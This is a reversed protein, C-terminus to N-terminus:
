SSKTAQLVNEIQKKMGAAGPLLGMLKSMSGMNKMAELQSLFDDFTFEEGKLIIAEKLDKYHQRKELFFFNSFIVLIIIIPHFTMVSIRYVSKAKKRSSYLTFIIVYDLFKTATYGVMVATYIGYVMTILDGCECVKKDCDRELASILLSLMMTFFITWVLWFKFTIKAEIRDKKLKKGRKTYIKEIDLDHVSAVHDKKPKFEAKPSM